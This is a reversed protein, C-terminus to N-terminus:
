ATSGAQSFSDLHLDEWDWIQEMGGMDLNTPTSYAGFPNNALFQDMDFTLDDTTTIIPIQDIFTTESVSIASGSVPMPAPVPIITSIPAVDATRIEENRQRKKISARQRLAPTAQVLNQLFAYSTTGIKTTLSLQHLMELSSEIADKVEGRCPLLHERDHIIASCLLTATDFISFVVMHFKANIPFEHDFLRRAVKLLKLATEVGMFRFMDDQDTLKDSSLRTLYPKLFDLMTVFIVCHLQYRQFVFYPYQVDFSTDPDEVRFIAPLENVFGSCRSQVLLTERAAMRKVDVVQALATGVCRGLQAQLVM